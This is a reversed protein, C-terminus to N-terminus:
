VRATERQGAELVVDVLAHARALLPRLLDEPELVLLARAIGGLRVLVRGSRGDGDPSETLTSGAGAAGAAGAAGVRM